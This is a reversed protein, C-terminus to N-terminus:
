IQNSRDRRVFSLRKQLKLLADEEARSPEFGPRRCPLAAIVGARLGPRLVVVGVVAVVLMVVLVALVVV